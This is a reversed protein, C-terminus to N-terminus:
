HQGLIGIGIENLIIINKDSFSKSNNPLEKFIIYSKYNENKKLIDNKNKFVLKIIKEEKPKLTIFKPFCELMLELSNNQFEMPTEFYPM